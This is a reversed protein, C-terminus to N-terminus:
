EMQDYLRHYFTTNQFIQLKKEHTDTSSIAAPKPYFSRHFLIWNNQLWYM